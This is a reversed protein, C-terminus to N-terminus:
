KKTLWLQIEEEVMDALAEIEDFETHTDTWKPSFLWETIRRKLAQREEDNSM